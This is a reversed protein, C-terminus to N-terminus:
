DRHEELWQYIDEDTIEAEDSLLRQLRAKAEPSFKNAIGALRGLHYLTISEIVQLCVQQYEEDSPDTSGEVIATVQAPTLIGEDITRKLAEVAFRATREVEQSAEVLGGGFVEQCFWEPLEANGGHGDDAVLVCPGYLERGFVLCALKNLPLGLLIGEDHVYGVVRVPPADALDFEAPDIKRSVADIWGGVFGQISELGDISIPLPETEDGVPLLIAEISM